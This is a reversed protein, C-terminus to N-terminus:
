ELTENQRRLNEIKRDLCSLVAAISAQEQPSAPIRIELTHIHNRNLTPNASGCDYQEFKLTQLFYYAFRPNNEHFDKIWLTTDTPWFDTESYFVSGLTGKRGVIVGPAKVRFEDHKGGFGSSFIVDYLGDEKMDRKVIDFGRQFTLFEGLEVEKWESM